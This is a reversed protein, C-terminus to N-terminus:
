SCDRFGFSGRMLDEIAIM